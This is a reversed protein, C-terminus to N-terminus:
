TFVTKRLHDVGDPFMARYFEEFPSEAIMAAFERWRLVTDDERQAPAGRCILVFFCTVEDERWIATGLAFLAADNPVVLGTEELLERACTAKASEDGERKGGPFGWGGHKRNTVALVKGDVGHVLAISARSM